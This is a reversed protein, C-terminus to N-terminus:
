YVEICSSEYRFQNEAAMAALGRGCALIQRDLPDNDISRPDIYQLRRRKSLFSDSLKQMNAFEAALLQYANRDDETSRATAALALNKQARRQLEGVWEESVPSNNHISNVITIRWERIASMQEIGTKLFEQSFGRSAPVAVAPHAPEAPLTIVIRNAKFTLAGGTLRAVDQVEVYSKGNLELITAYESHGAISLTRADQGAQSHGLLFATILVMMTILVANRMAM